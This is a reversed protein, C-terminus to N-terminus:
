RAAPVDYIEIARDGLKWYQHLRMVALRGAGLRWGLVQKPAPITGLPKIAKSGPDLLFLHFVEPVNRKDGFVTPWQPDVMLGFPVTAADTNQQQLSAFDFQKLPPTTEPLAVKEHTPTIMEFVPAKQTGSLQLLTPVRQHQERIKKMTEWEALNAIEKDSLFKAAFPDYLKQRDPLRVDRKRDYAGAVKVVIQSFDPSFFAIQMPPKAVEGTSSSFLRATKTRRLTALGWLSVEHSVRAGMPSKFYTVIEWGKPGKRFALESFPGIRGVQKGSPEFAFAEKPRQTGRVPMESFVLLRASDPTFRLGVPAVTVKSIDVKALRRPKAGQLSYIELTTPATGEGVHVLGLLRGNPSVAFHADIYGSKVTLTAIRRLPEAQARAPSGGLALAALGGLIGITRSLTRGSM